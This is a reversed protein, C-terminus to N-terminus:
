RQQNMRSAPLTFPDLPDLLAPVPTHAGDCETGTSEDM